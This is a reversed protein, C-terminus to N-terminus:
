KLIKVIAGFKVRVNQVKGISLKDLIVNDNCKLIKKEGDIEVEVKSNSMRTKSRRTKRSEGSTGKFGPLGRGGMTSGRAVIIEHKKVVKVKVAKGKYKSAVIAMVILFVFVAVAAIGLGTVFWNLGQNLQNPDYNCGTLVMIGLAFLCILKNLKKM